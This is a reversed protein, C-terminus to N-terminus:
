LINARPLDGSGQRGAGIAARESCESERSYMYVVRM